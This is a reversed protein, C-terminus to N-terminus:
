PFLHSPCPCLTRTPWPPTSGWVARACVCVCVCVCVCIYVIVCLYLCVSNVFMCLCVCVYLCVCVCVCMMMFQDLSGVFVAWYTTLLHRIDPDPQNTISITLAMVCCCSRLHVGSQEREREIRPTIRFSKGYTCKDPFLFLLTDSGTCYLYKYFCNGFCNSAWKYLM